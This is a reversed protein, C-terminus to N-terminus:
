DVDFSQLDVPVPLTYNIELQPLLLGGEDGVERSDFRKASAGQQGGPLEEGIVVWGFNQGAAAVWAAVDAEMGATTGWSYSGEGDVSTTASPAAAFDGGPTSWFATDFFTHLWTADGSEAAAGSGEPGPADSAGEGWDATARHLSVPSPGAITRSMNLTLVVSDITSGPPISSVDFHILGRRVLGSITVGAFFHWGAGNSTAGLKDEYLTNDRDSTAILVEATAAPAILLACTGALTFRRLRSM